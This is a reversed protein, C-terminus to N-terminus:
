VATNRRSARRSGAELRALPEMLDPHRRTEPESLAVFPPLRDALLAGALALFRLTGDM